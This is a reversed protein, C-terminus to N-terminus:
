SEDGQGKETSGSLMGPVAQLPSRWGSVVAFSMCRAFIEYRFDPCRVGSRELLPRSNAADFRRTDRMDALDYTRAIPDFHGQVLRKKEDSAVQRYGFSVNDATM